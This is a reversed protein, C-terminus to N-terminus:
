INFKQEFMKRNAMSTRTLHENRSILHQVVRDYNQLAKNCTSIVTQLDNVNMDLCYEEMDFLSFLGEIKQKYYDNQYVGVSPVNSSLAFLLFHYSTGIAFHLKGILGRLESPTYENHIISVRDRFRMSDVIKQASKRDDDEDNYSIPVFILHRNSEGVITDLLNAYRIINPKEYNASYSSADRINIGILFSGSPLHEEEMVRMLNSYNAPKILLADDGTHVVKSIQGSVSKVLEESRKGDRVGIVDAHKFLMRAVCRDLIHNFPGLGQSTLLIPVKTFKSLLAPFAKAYLGELWWISNLYGGGAFFLAKANLLQSYFGLCAANKIFCHGILTFLFFNIALWLGTFIALVRALWAGLPNSSTQWKTLYSFFIEPSWVVRANINNSFQEPNFTYVILEDTRKIQSLWQLLGLLMAYDGKNKLTHGNSIFVLVKNGKSKNM